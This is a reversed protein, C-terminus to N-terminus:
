TAHSKLRRRIRALRVSTAATRRSGPLEARARRCGGRARHTRHSGGVRHPRERRGRSRSRPADRLARSQPGRAAAKRIFGGLQDRDDVGRTDVQSRVVDQRSVRAKARGKIGCSLARFAGALHVSDHVDGDWHARAATGHENSPGILRDIVADVLEPEHEDAEADSNEADRQDDAAAHTSPDDVRQSPEVSLCGRETLALQTSPGIGRM